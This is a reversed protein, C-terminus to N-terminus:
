RRVQGIVTFDIRKRWCKKSNTWQDPHQLFPIPQDIRQAGV